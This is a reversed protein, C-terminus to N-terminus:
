LRLLGEVEVALEDLADAIMRLDEPEVHEQRHLPLKWHLGMYHRLWTTPFLTDDWDFVM